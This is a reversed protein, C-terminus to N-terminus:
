RRSRLTVLQSVGKDTCCVRRRSVRNPQYDARRVARDHSYIWVALRPLWVARFELCVHIVFVGSLVLIVGKNEEIGGIAVIM